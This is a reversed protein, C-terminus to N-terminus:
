LYKRVVQSVTTKVQNWTIRGLLVKPTETLEADEFYGLSQLVMFENWDPFKTKFFDLLENLSYQQLLFFIDYFDKKSGRNTIAALKMAAIDEVAAVRVGEEFIIPRIWGYPYKVIDTKVDDFNLHLSIPSTAILETKGFESMEYVFTPADFPEPSFLDIDISLRHGLYLALGTGGVLIRDQLCPVIMLKKLAALTATPLAHYNLM